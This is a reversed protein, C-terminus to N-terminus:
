MIYYSWGGGRSHVGASCYLLGESIGIAMIVVGANNLVANYHSHTFPKVEARSQVIRFSLCSTISLM